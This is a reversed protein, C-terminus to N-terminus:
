VNSYICIYLLCDSVLTEIFEEKNTEPSLRRVVSDVAAPYANALNNLYNELEQNKNEQFQQYRLPIDIAYKSMDTLFAKVRDRSVAENLEPNVLGWLSEL